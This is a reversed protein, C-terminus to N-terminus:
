AAHAHLGKIFQDARKAEAVLVALPPIDLTGSSSRPLAASDRSPSHTSNWVADSVPRSHTDILISFDGHTNVSHGALHIERVHRPDIHAIYERAEFGHNRSSVYVNNVDLLLGCGSRDALAQLFEWETMQANAFRLYSSVNEILVQRGLYDQLEGVRAVMLQLAEETYPLPLLDNLHTGDVAGWSLHESVLAPEALHVLRKLRWLHDRDLPDVSGLSLGSM